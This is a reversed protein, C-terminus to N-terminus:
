GPPPAGKRDGWLFETKRGLKKNKYYVEQIVPLSAGLNFSFIKFFRLTCTLVHANKLIKENL